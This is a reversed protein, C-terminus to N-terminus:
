CGSKYLFCIRTLFIRQIAWNRCSEKWYGTMSEQLNKLDNQLANAAQQKMSGLLESGDPLLNKLDATKRLRNGLDRLYDKRDFDM